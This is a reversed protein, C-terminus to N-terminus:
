RSGSSDDLVIEVIYEGSTGPMGACHTKFGSAQLADAIANMRAESALEAGAWIEGDRWERVWHKFPLGSLAKRIEHARKASKRM